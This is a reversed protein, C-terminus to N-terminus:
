SVMFNIVFCNHNGLSIAIMGAKNFKTKTSAQNYVYVGALLLGGGSAIRCGLCDTGEM